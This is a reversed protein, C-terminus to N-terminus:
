TKEKTPSKITKNRATVANQYEKLAKQRAKPTSTKDAWIEGLTKKTKTVNHLLQKIEKLQTINPM